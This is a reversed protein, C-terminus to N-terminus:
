QRHEKKDTCGAKGQIKVDALSLHVTKGKKTLRVTAGHVFLKQAFLFFLSVTTTTFVLMCLLPIHIAKSLITTRVSM